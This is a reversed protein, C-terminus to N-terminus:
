IISLFTRWWTVNSCFFPAMMVGLSSIQFNWKKAIAKQLVYSWILYIILTDYINTLSVVCKHGYMSSGVCNHGTVNTGLCTLAWVCKRGSMNYYHPWLWTLACVHVDTGQWTIIFNRFIGTPISSTIASCYNFLYDCKVESRWCCNLMSTNEGILNVFLRTSVIIINNNNLSMITDPWLEHQPVLTDPFQWTHACVHNFRKYSSLTCLHWILIVNHMGTRRPQM